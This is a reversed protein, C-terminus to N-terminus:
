LDPEHNGHTPVFQELTIKLLNALNMIQPNTPCMTLVCYAQLLENMERAQKVM